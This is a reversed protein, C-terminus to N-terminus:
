DDCEVMVADIENASLMEEVTMRKLGEFTKHRNRSKYTEEDPEAIGVAEFVSPYRRVCAMKGESHMHGLGIHGIRIKDM